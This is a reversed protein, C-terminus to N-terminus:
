TQRETKNQKRKEGRVKNEEEVWGDKREILSMKTNKDRKGRGRRRIV